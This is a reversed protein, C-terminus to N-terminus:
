GIESLLEGPIDMNSWVHQIDENEELAEVLRLVQKAEQPNIKIYSNPVMGIEAYKIKVGHKELGNKVEEFNDPKVYIEYESEETKIDDAGLSIAQELLDDENISSTDIGLVGMKKFVWSVCGAEGMNGGSRSLIHRIESAVRKKNDTIGEILLAVGSPGYAEFIVEEVIGGEIEGCGRAIAKKISEAPMNAEKAKQIALRLRANGEPDKGGQRAAIAIEKSLKSFLKGRAADAAGKKHKISAWKSHGSM